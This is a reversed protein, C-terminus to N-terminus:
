GQLKLNQFEEIESKSYWQSKLLFEYYEDFGSGFRIMKENIGKLSCALNQLWIPAKDYLTKIM